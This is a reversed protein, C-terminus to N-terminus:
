NGRQWDADMTTMKPLFPLIPNRGIASDEAGNDDHEM